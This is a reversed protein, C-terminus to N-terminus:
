GHHGGCSGRVAQALPPHRPLAPGQGLPAPQPSHTSALGHQLTPVQQISVPTTLHEQGAPLAAAGGIQAAPPTPQTPAARAIARPLHSIHQPARQLPLLAPIQTKPVPLQAEHEVLEEGTAAPSFPGTSFNRFNSSSELSLHARDEAQHSNGLEACGLREVDAQPASNGLQQACCESHAKKKKKTQGM